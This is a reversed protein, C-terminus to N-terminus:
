KEKDYGTLVERIEQITQYFSDSLRKEELALSFSPNDWIRIIEGPKGSLLAIKSGLFVAEEVDHTIVITPAQRKQWEDLFLAQMKERTIADLASFPEDLLYLDSNMVMARAISVRQQQGGSLQHPYKKLLEGLGLESVLKEFTAKESAVKGRIKLGMNINDAVTKWPLLGYNQPIWGITQKKTDIKQGNLLIDGSVIPHLNTISNILTSKGTGSPGILALIETKKVELDINKLVVQEYYATTINKIELM